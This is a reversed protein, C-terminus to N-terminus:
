NFGSFVSFSDTKHSLHEEASSSDLHNCVSSCQQHKTLKLGWNKFDAMIQLNLFRRHGSVPLRPHLHKRAPHLRSSNERSMQLVIDSCRHSTAAVLNSLAHPAKREARRGCLVMLPIEGYSLVFQPCWGTWLPCFRQAFMNVDDGAESGRSPLIGGSKYRTSHDDHKHLHPSPLLSILPTNLLSPLVFPCSLLSLLLLSPLESSVPLHFTLLLPPANSYLCLLQCSVPCCRHRRESIIYCPERIAGPFRPTAM